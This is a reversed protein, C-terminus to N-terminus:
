EIFNLLDEVDSKKMLCVLVYHLKFDHITHRVLTVQYETFNGRDNIRLFENRRPIEKIGEICKTEKTDAFYFELKDLKM